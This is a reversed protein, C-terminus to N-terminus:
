VKCWIKPCLWLNEGVEDFLQWEIPAVLDSCRYDV